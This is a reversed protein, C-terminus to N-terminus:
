LELARPTVSWKGSGIIHAARTTRSRDVSTPCVHIRQRRYKLQKRVNSQAIRKNGNSCMNNPRDKASVNLRPIQNQIALAELLQGPVRKAEGALKQVLPQIRQM